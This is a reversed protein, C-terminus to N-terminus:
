VTREINEITVEIDGIMNNTDELTSAFEAIIGTPSPQESVPDDAGTSPGHLREHIHGVRTRINRIRDNMAHCNKLIIGLGREEKGHPQGLPAGSEVNTLRQTM